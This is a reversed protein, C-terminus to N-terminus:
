RISRVDLTRTTAHVELGLEEHHRLLIRVSPDAVMDDVEDLIVVNKTGRALTNVHLGEPLIVVRGRYRRYWSEKKADCAILLVREEPIDRLIARLDESSGGDLVNLMTETKECKKERGAARIM